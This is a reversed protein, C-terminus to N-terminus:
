IQIDYKNKFYNTFADKFEDKITKYILARLKTYEKYTEFPLNGRATPCFVEMASMVTYLGDFNYKASNFILENDGCEIHENDTIIVERESRQYNEQSCYYFTIGKLEKDYILFLTVPLKKYLKFYHQFTPFNTEIMLKYENIFHQYFNKLYSIDYENFPDVIFDQLKRTYKLASAIRYGLEQLREIDNKIINTKLFPRKEYTEIIQGESTIKVAEEYLNRDMEWTLSSREDKAIYDMKLANYNQEIKVNNLLTKLDISESSKDYYNPYYKSAIAHIREIMLNINNSENLLGEEIIGKYGLLRDLIDNECITKKIQYETSCKQYEKSIKWTKVGLIYPLNNNRNTLSQLNTPLLIVKDKQENDIERFGIGIIKMLSFNVLAVIGIPSDTFPPFAKKLASFDNNLLEKYFSLFYQATNYLEQDITRKKEESAFSYFTDAIGIHISKTNKTKDRYLESIKSRLSDNDLTDLKLVDFIIIYDRLKDFYFGLKSLLISGDIKTKEIINNEMLKNMIDYSSYMQISRHFKNMDIGDSNEKYLIEALEFLFRRVQDEINKGFRTFNKELFSSYLKKISLILDRQGLDEAVEFAIRMFYPSKEFLDLLDDEILGDFRYFNKYKKLMKNFQDENDLEEIRFNGLEKVRFNRFHGLNYGLPFLEVNQSLSTPEGDSSLYYEWNVSKCTFIFKCNTNSYNRVFDEINSLCNTIDINDIGDILILLPKNHKDFIELLKKATQISTMQESFNWDLNSKITHFISQQIDSGRYFLVPYGENVLTEATNCIWCTKGIGSEGVVAFAFKNNKLHNRLHENLSKNNVYLEPIYKKDRNISSGKLLKMYSNVQEKCFIKLNDVSYGIFFKLAEFYEEDPLTLTYGDKVEYGEPLKQKSITDYIEFSKGNTVAFLPAMPDVLRAYSCAQDITDQDLMKDEAKIELIMLHKGNRKILIDLRPNLQGKKLLEENQSNIKITQKGVILKFSKEFKLEETKIGIGNLYPIVLKNKVDEENWSKDKNDKKNTKM